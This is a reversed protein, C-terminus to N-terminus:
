KLQQTNIKNSSTVTEKTNGSAADLMTSTKLDLVGVQSGFM